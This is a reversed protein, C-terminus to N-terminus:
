MMLEREKQTRQQNANAKNKKEYFQELDICMYRLLKLNQKSNLYM